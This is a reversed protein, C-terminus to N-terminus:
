SYTKISPGNSATMPKEPRATRAARYMASSWCCSFFTGNLHPMKCTNVACNLRSIKTQFGMDLHDANWGSVDPARLVVRGWRAPPWSSLWIHLASVRWASTWLPGCSIGRFCFRISPECCGSFMQRPQSIPDYLHSPYWRASSHKFRRVSGALALSVTLLNRFDSRGSARSVQETLEPYRETSAIGLTM